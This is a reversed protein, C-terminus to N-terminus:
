EQLLDQKQLNRKMVQMNSILINQYQEIVLQQDAVSCTEWFPLQKTWLGWINGLYVEEPTMMLIDKTRFMGYKDPGFNACKIGNAWIRIHLMYIDRLSKAIKVQHIFYDLKNLLKEKRLKERETKKRKAECKHYVFLAVLVVFIVNLIISATLM